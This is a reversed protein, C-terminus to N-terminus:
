PNGEAHNWRNRTGNRTPGQKLQYSQAVQKNDRTAAPEKKARAPRVDLVVHSWVEGHRYESDVVM